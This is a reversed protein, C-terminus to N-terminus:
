KELVLTVPGDNVLQVEMMAGFEGGAVKTVGLEKLKKLFYEYLIKAEGPDAAATYDPRNGKATDGALTFQSVVLIGGGIDLVSRDNVKGDPADFLRLKTVKEALWQAQLSTDGKLVCLLILYGRGIAGVNRGDVAVSASSVRQLVLRM